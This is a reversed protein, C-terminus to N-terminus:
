EDNDGKYTLIPVSVTILTGKDKESQIKLDGSLLAIREKMISLGFNSSQNSQNRLNIAEIDFGSGNDKITVIIYDIHYNINIDIDTASSHKIANRCAEQIIRYLTTNLIPVINEIEENHCFRININHESTLQKVFREVTPILGLDCLSMPKLNYIINRMENIVTKIMNSMTNLELKARIQDIDILKICLETKHVLSTLNQVTSDHLDGAIRQREIEQAELINLGNSKNIHDARDKQCHNKFGILYELCEQTQNLNDKKILLLREEQELALIKDKLNSIEKKMEETNRIEENYIPSFLDINPIKEKEKESIIVEMEKILNYLDDKQQSIANLQEEYDFYISHLFKNSYECKKIIDLSNDDRNENNDLM